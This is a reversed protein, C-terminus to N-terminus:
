VPLVLEAHSRRIPYETVGDREVAVWVDLVVRGGADEEVVRGGAIMTEGM